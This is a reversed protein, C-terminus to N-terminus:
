SANLEQERQIKRQRTYALLHMMEDDTHKSGDLPELQRASAALERAAERQQQEKAILAEDPEEVSDIGGGSSPTWPNFLHKYQKENRTQECQKLKYELSGPTTAAARWGM